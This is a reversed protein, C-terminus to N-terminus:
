RWVGDASPGRWGGEDLAWLSTRHLQFATEPWSVHRRQEPRQRGDLLARAFGQEPGDELPQTLCIRPAAGVWGRAHARRREEGGSRTPLRAHLAGRQFAPVRPRCTSQGGNRSAPTPAQRPSASRAVALPAPAAERARRPPRHRTRALPPLRAARPGRDARRAGCRQGRRAACAWGLAQCLRDQPPGLLWDLASPTLRPRLRGSAFLPSAWIPVPAASACLAAFCQYAPASSCPQDGRQPGMATHRMIGVTGQVLLEHLPSPPATRHLPPRHPAISGLHDLFPLPGAKKVPGRGCTGRQPKAARSCSGATGWLFLARGRPWTAVGRARAGAM